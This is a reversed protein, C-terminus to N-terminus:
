IQWILLWRDNSPLARHSGSKLNSLRTLVSPNLVFFVTFNICESNSLRTLVSPNLVWFGQVTLPQSNSLRTLVSPNLVSKGSIRSSNTNSLRTLVSPNLVFRNRLQCANENSLRTLVSPNLVTVSQTGSELPNSLRTLVFFHLINSIFANRSSYKFTKNIHFSNFSISVFQYFYQFLIIDDVLLLEFEFARALGWFTHYSVWFAIQVAYWDVTCVSCAISIWPAPGSLPLLHSRSM